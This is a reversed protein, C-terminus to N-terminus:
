AEDIGPPLLRSVASILRLPQVDLLGAISSSQSQKWVRCCPNQAEGFVGFQCPV